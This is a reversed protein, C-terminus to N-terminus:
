DVVLNWVDVFRSEVNRAEGQLWWSVNGFFAARVVMALVQEGLGLGSSSCMKASSERM